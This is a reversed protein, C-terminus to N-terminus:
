PRHGEIIAPALPGRPARGRGELHLPDQTQVPLPEGAPVDAVEVAEGPAVVGHPLFGAQDALGARPPAPASLGPGAEPLQQVEVAAGMGPQAAAGVVALGEDCDEVVGGLAQEVGLEPGGLRGGRDERGQMGHEGRPAQGDREVGIAGAPAKVGRRGAAGDITRVAGLDAPGERVQADLVDAGVRGLRAAAALAEVAGYLAAEDVFQVQRAEGRARRGIGVESRNM